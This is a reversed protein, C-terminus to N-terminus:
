PTPQLTSHGCLAASSVHPSTITARATARDRFVSLQRDRRAAPAVQLVGRAERRGEGGCARARQPGADPAGGRGRVFAAFAASRARRHGHRRPAPAGRDDGYEPLRAHPEAADLLVLSLLRQ